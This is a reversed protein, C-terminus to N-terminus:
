ATGLALLSLVRDRSIGTLASTVSTFAAYGPQNIAAVFDDAFSPASAADAGTPASASLDANATALTRHVTDRAQRVRDQAQMVQQLSRRTAETDGIQWTQPQLAPPQPDIKVRLPQGSAFRQGGGRISLTDRV